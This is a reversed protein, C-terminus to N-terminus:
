GLKSAVLAKLDAEPRAGYHSIVEAAYICGIRACDPLSRGQVLAAMFGGAFLDGAGTTDVLKAVTEGGVDYRHGGGIVVAGKESRTVVTICSHKALEAM